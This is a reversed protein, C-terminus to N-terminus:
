FFFLGDEEPQCHVTPSYIMKEKLMFVTCLIMPPFYGSATGKVFPQKSLGKSTFLKRCMLMSYGELHGTGLLAGQIPSLVESHVVTLIETLIWVAFFRPMVHM